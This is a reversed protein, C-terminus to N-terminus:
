NYMCENIHAYICEKVYEKGNYDIVPYKIYNGTSYLLVKNNIWGTYLNTDALILSGSGDQGVERGRPLWWDMRQLCEKKFRIKRSQAKIIQIYETM